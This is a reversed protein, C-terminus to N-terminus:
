IRVKGSRTLWLWGPWSTSALGCGIGARAFGRRWPTETARRQRPPLISILEVAVEHLLLQFLEKQEELPLLDVLRAFDELSRRILDADLVRKRRRENDFDLKGCRAKRM